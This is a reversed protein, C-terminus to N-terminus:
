KRERTKKNIWECECTSTSLFTYACCNLPSLEDSKIKNWYIMNEVIQNKRKKKLTICHWVGM